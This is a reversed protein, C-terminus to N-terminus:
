TKANGILFCCFFLGVFLFGLLFVVYGWFGARGMPITVVVVFLIGSLLCVNLFGRCTLSFWCLRNYCNCCCCANCWLSCVRCGFLRCCAFVLIVLRLLQVLLLCGVLLLSSWVLYGVFLSFWFSLDYRNGRCM